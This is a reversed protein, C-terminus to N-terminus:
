QRYSQYRGEYAARNPMAFSMSSAPAVAAAVSIVCAAPRAKVSCYAAGSCSCPPSTVVAM